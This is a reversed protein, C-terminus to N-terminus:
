LRVGVSLTVGRFEASGFSYALEFFPQPMLYGVQPASGFALRVVTGDKADFPAGGRPEIRTYGVGGSLFTSGGPLHTKATVLLRYITGDDDPGSRLGGGVVVSPSAYVEVPALPVRLLPLNVGIDVGELRVSAGQRGPFSEGFYYGAQVSIGQSLSTSAITLLALTALTKVRPVNGSEHSRGSPKRFDGM